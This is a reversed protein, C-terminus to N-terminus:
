VYIVERLIEDKIVPKLANKTVLDVKRGLIKELYEELELFKFFGVPESFEVLIDIDSKSESENRAVSGFVGIEKVYYASRLFERNEELVKRIRIIKEM